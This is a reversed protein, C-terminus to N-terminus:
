ITSFTRLMSIDHYFRKIEPKRNKLLRSKSSKSEDWDFLQEKKIIHIAVIITYKVQAINHSVSFHKM